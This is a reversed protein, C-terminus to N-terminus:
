LFFHADDNLSAHMRMFLFAHMMKESLGNQWKGGRRGDLKWAEAVIEWLVERGMEVGEGCDGTAGGMGNGRRQWTKASCPEDKKRTTEM